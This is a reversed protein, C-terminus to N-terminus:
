IRLHMMKEEEEGSIGRGEAPLTALGPSQGAPPGVAEDSFGEESTVMSKETQSQLM